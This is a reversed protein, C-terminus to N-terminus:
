ALQARLRKVKCDRITVQIAIKNLTTATKRISIRSTLSSNKKTFLKIIDDSRKLTLIDSTIPLLTALQRSETVQRSMLPKAVSKSYLGTAKWGSRVNEERLGIERAKTYFELFNAKSIKTTDILAIYEDILRRYITKLSSFYDLNLLQLIYSTYTTVFM